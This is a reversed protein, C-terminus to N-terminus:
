DEESIRIHNYGSKLDIKTFTRAGSLCDILNDIRPFPFRYNITVMNISRSDVCEGSEM